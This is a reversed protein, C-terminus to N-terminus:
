VKIGNKAFDVAIGHLKCLEICRPDSAYLDSIDALALHSNDIQGLKDNTIFLKFFNIM